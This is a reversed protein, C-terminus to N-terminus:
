QCFAAKVGGECRALSRHLSRPLAPYLCINTVPRSAPRMSRVYGDIGGRLPVHGVPSGELMGSVIGVAEGLAVLSPWLRGWVRKRPRRWLGRWESWRPACAHRMSFCARRRGRTPRHRRLAAHSPRECWSWGCCWRGRRRSRRVPRGSGRRRQGARGRAPPTSRSRRSRWRSSGSWPASGAACIRAGRCRRGCACPARPGCSGCGHRARVARAGARARGAARRPEGFLHGGPDLLGLRLDLLGLRLDFIRQTRAQLLAGVQGAAHLLAHEAEDSRAALKGRRPDLLGRARSLRGAEYRAPLLLVREERLRRPPGGCGGRRGKNRLSRIGRSACSASSSARWGSGRPCTM